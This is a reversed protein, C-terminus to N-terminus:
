KSIYKKVLSNLSPLNTIGIRIYVATMFRDVVLDEGREPEHFLLLSRGALIINGYACVFFLIQLPFCCMDNHAILSVRLAFFPNIRFKYNLSEFVTIPYCYRLLDRTVTTPRTSRWCWPRM